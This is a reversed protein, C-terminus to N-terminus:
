GRSKRGRTLARPFKASPVDASRLPETLQLRDPLPWIEESPSIVPDWGPLTLTRPVKCPNLSSSDRVMVPARSLARSREGEGKRSAEAVLLCITAVASNSSPVRKRIESPRLQDLARLAM